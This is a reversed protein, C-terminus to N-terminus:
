RTTSVMAEGDFSCITAAVSNLNHFRSYDTASPVHNVDGLGDVDWPALILLSGRACADFRVQEPKWYRGIPDKQIHIIPYGKEICRNKIIQEGKSIGPTVIVTAGRMIQAKWRRCDDMFADTHEYPTHGDAAKRHCFVQVKNAWRLLFLNGFAAYDTGDISVHLCRRMFDPRLRRLIARRPNDKVYAMMRQLHAEDVCITDDYDGDFLPREILPRTAYYDRRKRMGIHRILESTSTPQVYGTVERRWRSTCASKFANIITGLSTDMREKVVIVGHWHDPMCVQCLTTINRGKDAQIQTTAEWEEHVINGVASMIVDPHHADDNLVSLLPQRETVVLTILYAGAEYYDHGANHPRYPSPTNM